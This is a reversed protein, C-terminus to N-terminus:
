GASCPVALDSADNAAGTTVTARVSWHGSCTKPNRLLDHRVKRRVKRKVTVRRGGRTIRRRTVVTTTVNRHAGVDLTLSDLGITIGPLSPVAGSFGDVRLEYGFPGSPRALLRASIAKAAGIAMVRLVVGALDGSQAPAALFLDITAPIDQNVIGGAHAVAAGHGIRSAAPCAGTTIAPGSCRAAVAATDIAFGRQLDLVISSPVGQNVASATGGLAVHLTTGTKPRSPSLTASITADQAVAPGALSAVLLATVLLIRRV